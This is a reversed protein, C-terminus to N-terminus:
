IKFAVLFFKACIAQALDGAHHFDRGRNVAGYGLCGCLWQLSWDNQIKSNQFPPWYRLGTYLFFRKVFYLTTAQMKSKKTWLFYVNVRRHSSFNKRQIPGIQYKECPSALLLMPYASTSAEHFLKMIPVLIGIPQEPLWYCCLNQVLVQRM